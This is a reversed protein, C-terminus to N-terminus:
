VADYAELIKLLDLHEEEDHVRLIDAGNQLALLHLALTGSLTGSAPKQLIKQITSKRSAGVLLPYGFHKFHSLHKILLLNQELNKAFGFGIDLVIDRVGRSTLAELKHAFFADMEAFLNEYDTLNAMEKPTGQTHMLFVKAGYEGCLEIMAENALGSVDNVYGFGRELAFRAVEVNYTDISFDKHKYLGQQHIFELVEGLRELEERPEMLESGPRSSAGGIDIIGVESQVLSEVREIASRASQRSDAYFSDPTVNVVAMIQRKPTCEKLHSELSVAFQKLGFPQAKCKQAIRALQALTGFLVGDYHSSRALICDRPTALDGGVSLAEQKLIMAASLPLDSVRFALIKSKKSMIAVGASDSQISEMAQTISAENIRQLHLKMSGM